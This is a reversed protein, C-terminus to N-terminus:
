LEAKFVSNENIASERPVTPELKQLSYGLHPFQGPFSQHMFWSLTKAQSLNNPVSPYCGPGQEKRYDVYRPHFKLNEYRDRALIM